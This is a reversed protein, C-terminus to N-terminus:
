RPKWLSSFYKFKSPKRSFDKFILYAKLVVPFDSLHRPFNKFEEIKQQVKCQQYLDLDTYFQQKKKLLVVIKYENELVLKEM